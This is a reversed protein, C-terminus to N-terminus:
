RTTESSVDFYIESGIAPKPGSRSAPFEPWNWDLGMPKLKERLARLDWLHIVGAYRAAVVLQSGGATFGTWTARDGYPDELKALTRGTAVEKLHLVGPSLEMAMLTGDATFSVTGPYVELERAVTRQIALTSLNVFDFAADRCIILEDSKPTFFVNMPGRFSWEHLLASTRTEWLRVQSSHWGATAVFRGDPSLAAVSIGDHDLSKESVADDELDILRAQNSEESVVALVTGGSRSVARMPTSPLPSRHALRVKFGNAAREITWRQLGSAPGCTILEEGHKQFHVSLTTGLTIRGAERHAVLDFFHVGDNMGLALIGDRESIAGEYLITEARSPRPAFTHYQRSPVAELLQARVGDEWAVGLWRGGKSFGVQVGFPLKIVQRRSGPEWIRVVGEWGASAVLEGEPHFSILTVQQANGELTALKRK